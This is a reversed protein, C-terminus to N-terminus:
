VAIIKVIQVVSFLGKRKERACGLLAIQDALRKHADAVGFADANLDVFFLGIFPKHGGRFLSVSVRKVLKPIVVFVADDDASVSLFGDAKVLQGGFLPQGNRLVGHTVSM